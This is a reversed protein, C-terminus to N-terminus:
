AGAASKPYPAWESEPLALRDAVVQLVEHNFGMGTHSCNVEVNEAGHAEDQLCSQWHVIGDTESYISTTPVPIPQALYSRIADSEHVPRGGPRIAMLRTAHTASIDRFPTGM